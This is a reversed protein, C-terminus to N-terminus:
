RLVGLLRASQGLQAVPGQSIYRLYDRVRKVPIDIDEIAM